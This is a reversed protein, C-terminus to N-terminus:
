ADYHLPQFRTEVGGGAGKKAVILGCWEENTEPFDARYHYPPFRSEKRALAAHAVIKAVDHINMAEHCRMLEHLNTAKLQDRYADLANLKAIASTLSIETKVPGFHDTSIM